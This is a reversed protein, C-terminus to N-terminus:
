SQPGAAPGGLLGHKLLWVALATARWSEGSPWRDAVAAIVQGVTTPSAAAALAAAADDAGFIHRLEPYIVYGGPNGSFIGGLATRQVARALDLAETPYHAFVQAFRLGAPHHPPTELRAAFPSQGLTAWVSEYGRIVASWDYLTRARGAAAASLRARRAGDACLDFLAQEFAALDVEVSQGLFLHLARQYLISGLDSLRDLDGSWRTPVRVGVDATVTDKYGDFDSVIVPLGAAMAEIVSLGFTEQLNDCPSVFLDAAALLHPKEADPFDVHLTVAGGLGLAQAWLEVMRPTQTGQRAGALLLRLRPASPGRRGLVRAFVQVLPFLDMKDYESFRGLGLIVLEDAAVGLRARMAARNGARLRDVDVGLPVVPMAFTAPPPAAGIRRLAARADDLSRQLM